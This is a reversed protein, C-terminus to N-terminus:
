RQDCRITLTRDDLRGAVTVIHCVVAYDTGATGGSLWVTAATTTNSQSEKTLGTPVTWTVSAITDSDLWDEWDVTYDLRAGPDKIWSSPM